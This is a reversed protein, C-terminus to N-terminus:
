KLYARLPSRLIGIYQFFPKMQILSQKAGKDNDYKQRTGRSEECRNCAVESYADINGDRTESRIVVVLM